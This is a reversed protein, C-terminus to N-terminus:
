PGLSVAPKGRLREEIHAGLVDAFSGKKGITTNFLVIAAYGDKPNFFAFSSYGGTAGNHWYTGTKPVYLWAFAVRMGAPADARLEHSMAMAAPLTAAAGVASAAHLADPDLNAKLYTLMDAATSRIAGAGAFADLDWGPTPQHQANHGQIVRAKQAATLKITTNKLHLPGTVEKRLLEPYTEHACNALAQGLLGFGLNSYLFGAHAPKEVGHKALYAYLNAAHYDAYPNKPNAPHFNDPMRPLGSHQTVLDLLTIGPGAPKAVTGPPLLLRVPEDLKVKGQAVMQALILGTFSKTISGIEFISDPKATGYALIRQEGNEIVGIAVGAGTQPALVGDRLAPALDRDLVTKLDAITLPPMAPDYAIPKAAIATSRREFNLVMPMGQSWTGKLENSNASLTGSWHGHVVPVDFSFRSGKLVANACKLGMAGQDLSDLTCSENGAGNSTVHLQIRLSQTGAKLTGLWIGDVPSTHQAFTMTAPIGLMIGALAFSSWASRFGELM